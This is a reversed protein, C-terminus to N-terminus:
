NNFSIFDIKVVFIIKIYKFSDNTNLTYYVFSKLYLFRYNFVLLPM